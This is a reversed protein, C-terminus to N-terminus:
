KRNYFELTQMDDFLKDRLSETGSPLQLYALDDMKYIGEPGPPDFMFGQRYGGYDDSWRQLARWVEDFPTDLQIEGLIKESSSLKLELLSHESVYIGPIDPYQSLPDKRGQQVAKAVYTM